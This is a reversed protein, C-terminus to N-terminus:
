EMKNNAKVAKIHQVAKRKDANLFEYTSALMITIMSGGSKRLRLAIRIFFYIIIFLVATIVFLSLLDNHM